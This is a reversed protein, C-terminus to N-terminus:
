PYFTPQAPMFRTGIEVPLAYSAGVAAYATLDNEPREVEDLLDASRVLLIRQMKSLQRPKGSKTPKSSVTTKQRLTEGYTSSDYTVVYGSNAMFGTDKPAHAKYYAIIDFATKRVIQSEAKHLKEIIEPFHNFEEMN